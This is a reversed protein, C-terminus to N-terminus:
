YFWRLWIVLGIGILLLVIVVSLVIRSSAARRAMSGLISRSKKMHADIEELGESASELKGRQRELEELTEAGHQESEGAVQLAHRLRQTSEESVAYTDMASLGEEEGRREGERGGLLGEGVFFFFCFAQM